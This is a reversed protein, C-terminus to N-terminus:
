NKTKKFYVCTTFISWPQSEMVFFIYQKLGLIPLLIGEIKEAFFVM